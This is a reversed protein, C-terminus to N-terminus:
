FRLRVGLEAVVRLPPITAVRVQRVNVYTPALVDELGLGAVVAVDSSFLWSADVFADVGSLWRAQSAPSPDDSDFHTASQRVLLYDARVSLDIPRSRSAQWPHFAIGSAATFAFLTAEAVDLSGSRESASL